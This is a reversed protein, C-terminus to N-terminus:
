KLVVDYKEYLQYYKLFKDIDLDRLELIIEIINKEKLTNFKRFDTLNAIFINQALRILSDYAPGYVLLGIERSSYMEQLEDFDFQRAYIADYLRYVPISVDSENLDVDLIFNNKYTLFAIFEYYVDTVEELSLDSNTIISYSSFNESTFSMKNNITKDQIRTKHIIFKFLM